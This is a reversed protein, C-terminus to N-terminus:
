LVYTSGLKTGGLGKLYLIDLTYIDRWEASVATETLDNHSIYPHAEVNIGVLNFMVNSCLDKTSMLLSTFNRVNTWSTIAPQLYLCFHDLGKFFVREIM